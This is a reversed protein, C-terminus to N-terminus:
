TSAALDGEGGTSSRPRSLLWGCVILLCSLLVSIPEGPWNFWSKILVGSLVLGSAMAASGRGYPNMGIALSLGLALAGMWAPMPLIGHIFGIANLLVTTRLVQRLSHQTSPLLRIALSLLLLPELFGLIQALPFAGLFPPALALGTLSALSSRQFGGKEARLDLSFALLLPFSGIVWLDMQWDSSAWLSRWSNGEFPLARLIRAMSTAGLFAGCIWFAWARLWFLLVERGKWAKLVLGLIIFAATAFASWPKM